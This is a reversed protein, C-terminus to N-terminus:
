KEAKAPHGNATFIVAELAAVHDGLCVVREAFCSDVFIRAVQVFEFLQVVFLNM